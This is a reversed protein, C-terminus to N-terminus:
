LLFQRELCWLWLSKTISNLLVSYTGGMKNICMAMTSNTRLLVLLHPPKEKLFAQVAFKAVLLEKGVQVLVWGHKPKRTYSGLWHQICQERYLGKTTARGFPPQEM